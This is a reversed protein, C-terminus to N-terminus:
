ELALEGLDRSFFFSVTILASNVYVFPFVLLDILRFLVGLFLDM